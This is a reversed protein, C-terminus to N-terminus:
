LYGKWWYYLIGLYEHLIARVHRWAVGSENGYFQSVPIPAAIVELASLFTARPGGVREHGECSELQCIPCASEDLVVPSDQWADAKM